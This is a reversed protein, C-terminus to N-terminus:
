NASFLHVTKCDARRHLFFHNFLIIGQHHWVTGDSSGSSLQQQQQQTPEMVEVRPQKGGSQWVRPHPPPARLCWSMNTRILDRREQSPSRFKSREAAGAARLLCINPQPLMVCVNLFFFFFPSLIHNLRPRVSSTSNLHQRPSLLHGQVCCFFTGSKGYDAKQAKAEIQTMHLLLETVHDCENIRRVRERVTETERERKKTVAEHAHMNASILPIQGTM